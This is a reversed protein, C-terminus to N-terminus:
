KAEVSYSVSSFMHTSDILPNDTGKRAITAASNPPSKFNQITKRVDGEGISGIMSLLKEQRVKGIRDRITKKYKRLNQMFAVKMFPRKPVGLGYNNVTAKFLATVGDETSLTASSKAPFGIKVIANKGDAFIDNLKKHGKIDTAKTVKKGSKTKLM